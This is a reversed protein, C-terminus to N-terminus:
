RIVALEKLARTYAIYKENDSMDSDAVAVATFELGKSEYVTMLNIRSKSIKGTERIVNYNKRAFEKLRAESTIVAKLGKVPALWGSVKRPQLCVIESGDCGISQMDIKLERAVFDVIQNTNRYNQNLTYVKEEVASWDFLGRYPTIKQMMDGFVNFRARDNVHKLVYYEGESIDQGEDIFVFSHKPALDYGLKCLMLCLAYVDSPYLKGSKVGYKRRSRKVTEGYFYRAVDVGGECKGIAVFSSEGHLVEAFDCVAAFMGGIERVYGINSAIERKLERRKEMREAYTFM